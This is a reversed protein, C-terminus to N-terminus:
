TTTREAPDKLGAMSENLTPGDLIRRLKEAYGPDTAYGADQLADVFAGEEDGARLAEAYRPNDRLFAAYDEFAAELSDYSRFEAHERVAIGDRYELPPVSVTEGQWGHAKINFLNFSPGGDTGRLMREGWGTELAAQAVLARPPVGLGRATREAAPLIDTVFERPGAWRGHGAEGPREAGAASAANAANGSGDTSNPAPSPGSAAGVTGPPAMAPSPVSAARERYGALSKDLSPSAEAQGAHARIQREVMEALGFGQGEAAQMAMQQDFLQRYQKTAQNSFMGGDGLSASRMSKLLSQVFLSEFQRAVEGAAEADGGGARRRLATLDGANMANFANFAAAADSRM